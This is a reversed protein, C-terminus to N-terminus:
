DNLYDREFDDWPDSNGIIGFAENDSSYELSLIYDAEEYTTATYIWEGGFYVIFKGTKEDKFIGDANIM